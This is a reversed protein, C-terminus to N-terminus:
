KYVLRKIDFYYGEEKIWKDVTILKSRQRSYIKLKKGKIAVFTELDVVFILKEVKKPKQLRPFQVNIVSRCLGQSCSELM